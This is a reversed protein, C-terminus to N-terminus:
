RQEISTQEDTEVALLRGSALVERLAQLNSLVSDRRQQLVDHAQDLRERLVSLPPPPEGAGIDCVAVCEPARHSTVHPAFGHCCACASDSSSNEADAATADETDVREEADQVM